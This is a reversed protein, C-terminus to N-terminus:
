LDLPPTASTQDFLLCSQRYSAAEELTLMCAGGTHRSHIKSVDSEIKVVAIALSAVFAERDPHWIEAVENRLPFLCGFVLLTCIRFHTFRFNRRILLSAFRSIL